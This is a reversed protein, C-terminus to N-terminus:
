LSFSWYNVNPGSLFVQFPHTHLPLPGTQQLICLECKEYTYKKVEPVAGAQHFIVNRQEGGIICQFALEVPKRVTADGTNHLLVKTALELM